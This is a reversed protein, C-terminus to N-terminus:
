AMDKEQYDYAAAEVLKGCCEALWENFATRHDGTLLQSIAYEGVVLNVECEALTLTGANYLLYTPESGDNQCTVEFEGYLTGIYHGSYVLERTFEFDGNLM